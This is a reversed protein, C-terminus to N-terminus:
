RSPGIDVRRPWGALQSPAQCIFVSTVPRILRATLTPRDIRDFCELYISPIGWLRGLYFFPVAPAAGSSIIVDPKERKVVRWARVLNRCNNVIRRNTPWALWYTRWGGLRTAADPKDFTAIAVDRERLWPELVMLQDLHGGSSCALLVRNWRMGDVPQSAPIQSALERRSWSFREVLRRLAILGKGGSFLMQRQKSEAADGRFLHVAEAQLTKLHSLYTSSM